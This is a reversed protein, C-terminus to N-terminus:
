YDNKPKNLNNAKQFFLQKNFISAIRDKPVMLINSDTNSYESYDTFLAASNNKPATISGSTPATISGSTPATISGSAPASASAPASISASTPASIQGSSPASIQGSSPASIQGSSPASIQGSSPASIQGSSPTSIQGSTPASIQGSTPASIQGSTSAPTSVPASAPAPNSCAQGAMPPAKGSMWTYPITWYSSCQGVTAKASSACCAKGATTQGASGSCMSTKVPTGVSMRQKCSAPTNPDSYSTSNPSLGCCPDYAKTCAQLGFDYVPSGSTCPFVTQITGNNNYLITCKKSTLSTCAKFDNQGPNGRTLINGSNVPAPPYNAASVPQCLGLNSNPIEYNKCFQSLNSGAPILIGSATRCDATDFNFIAGRSPCPNSTAVGDWKYTCTKENTYDTCSNLNKNANAISGATAVPLVSVPGVGTIIKRVTLNGGAEVVYLEGNPGLALGQISSFKASSGYGDLYGDTSGTLITPTGGSLPTIYIKTTDGIIIIKNVQDVVIAYPGSLGSVITTVNGDGGTGIGLRRVRKLDPDVVYINGSADFSMQGRPQSYTGGDLVTGDVNSNSGTGSVKVVTPTGTPACKYIYHNSQDSFYVYGDVPSVAVSAPRNTNVLTTVVGASTIKRICNGNYDAVYINGSADVAINRPKNFAASTGTGNTTNGQGSGAFTSVNNASDIKIITNLDADSVYINGAADCAIGSPNKFQITSYTKGAITSIKTLGSNIADAFNEINQTQSRNFFFLFVM